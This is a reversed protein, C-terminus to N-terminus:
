AEHIQIIVTRGGMQRSWQAALCGFACLRYVWFPPPCIWRMSINAAVEDPLSYFGCGNDRWLDAHHIIIQTLVRAAELTAPPHALIELVPATDFGGSALMELVDATEFACDHSQPVNMRWQTVAVACTTAAQREQETLKTWMPPFYHAFISFLGACKPEQGIAIVAMIRPLLYALDEGAGAGKAASLYESLDDISITHKQASAIRAMAEPSACCATCADPGNESLKRKAFAAYLESVARDLADRHQRLEVPRITTLPDHTM